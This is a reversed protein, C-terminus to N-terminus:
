RARIGEKTLMEHYEPDMKDFPAQYAGTVPNGGAEEADEDIVVINPAKKGKHYIAQVLGGSVLVVLDAEETIVPM